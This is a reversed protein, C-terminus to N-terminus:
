DLPRSRSDEAATATKKTLSLSNNGPPVHLSLRDDNVARPDLAEVEPTPDADFWGDPVFNFEDMEQLVVVLWLVRAPVKVLLHSNPKCKLM